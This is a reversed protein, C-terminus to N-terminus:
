DNKRLDDTVESDSFGPFDNLSKWRFARALKTPWHQALREALIAKRGETSLGEASLRETLGKKKFVVSLDRALDDGADPKSNLDRLREYAALRDVLQAVSGRANVDLERCILRLDQAKLGHGGVSLTSFAKLGQFQIRNAHLYNISIRLYQNM